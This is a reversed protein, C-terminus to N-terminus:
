ESLIIKRDFNPSVLLPDKINLNNIDNYLSQLESQGPIFTPSPIPTPRTTQSLVTTSNPQPKTTKLAMIIFLTIFLFAPVIFIILYKRNYM